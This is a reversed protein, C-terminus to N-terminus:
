RVVLGAYLGRGPGFYGFVDVPQDNGLDAGRLTLSIRDNVAWEGRASLLVYDDLTVRSFTGFDTDVQKGVYDAGVGLKFRKHADVTWDLGLSGTWEPARIEDQGGDDESRTHSLQGYLALPGAEDFRASIEIGQRKSTGTRNSPTALLSPTFRTFIEDELEAAFLTASTNLWGNLLGGELDVGIEASTSREPRLSANGIFSGPFFGFLETFTPNKVGTAGSARLRGSWNLPGAFERAVGLRWTGADEFRHDNFSQRVSAEIVLDRGNFIAEGALGTSTFNQDQNTLGGFATDRARYDEIRHDIQGNLFIRADGRKIVTGGSTLTARTRRGESYNLDGGDDRNAREVSNYDLTLRHKFGYANGSLNGGLTLQDSDSIRVADNLRGDFDSDPDSDASSHSFRALGALTWDHDLALAGTLLASRSESGDREGDLGSSDVGGTAFDSLILTLQRKQGSEQWGIVAELRHTELSGMEYRAQAGAAAATELNIVGGIAGAGWFSSHEGRAVEIKDLALGSLLGFDTESTIPDSIDIGNLLVLTHNAEGGRLRVQTLGGLSGSRSIALGPVARLADAIYGTDRLEIQAEDLIDVTSTSYQASSEQLGVVRITEARYAPSVLEVRLADETTDQAHVLSPMVMLMTSSLLFPRM